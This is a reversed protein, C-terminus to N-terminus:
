PFFHDEEVLQGGLFLGRALEGVANGTDFLAQQAPDVPPILDRRYSELYLRKLCQLGGVFRTKSLLPISVNGLQAM